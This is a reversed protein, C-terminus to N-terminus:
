YRQRDMTYVSNENVNKALLCNTKVSLCFKKREEEKECFSVKLHDFWAPLVLKM